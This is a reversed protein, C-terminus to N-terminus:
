GPYNPALVGAVTLFVLDLQSPDAVTVPIDRLNNHAIANRFKVLDDLLGFVFPKSRLMKAIPTGYAKAADGDLLVTPLLWRGLNQGSGRLTSQGLVKTFSDRIRSKFGKPLKDCVTQSLRREWERDFQSQLKKTNMRNLMSVNHNSEWNHIDQEAINGLIRCLGEVLRSYSDRVQTILTPDRRSLILWRHGMALEAELSSDGAIVLPAPFSLTAAQSTRHEAVERDITETDIRLMRLVASFREATQRSLDDIQDWLLKDEVELWRRLRPSFPVGDLPSIAPHIQPEFLVIEAAGSPSPLLELKAWCSISRSTRGMRDLFVSRVRPGLEFVPAESMDKFQDGDAAAALAEKDYGTPNNPNTSTFTRVDTFAFSDDIFHGRHVSVGLGAQTTADVALNAYYFTTNDFGGRDLWPDGRTFVNDFLAPDPAGADTFSLGGNASFAYGSLGPPKQPECPAGFPPGCWGQGDNFGVLLDRGSASTAIATESRGLFGSESFSGQPANVQVNPGIRSGRETGRASARGQSTLASNPILTPASVLQGDRKINGFQAWAVVCSESLLFVIAVCFSIRRVFTSGKMFEGFSM